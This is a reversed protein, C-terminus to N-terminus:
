NDYIVGQLIAPFLQSVRYISATTIKNKKLVALKTRTQYSRRQVLNTRKGGVLKAIMSNFSEAFNTTHGFLIGECKDATIKFYKMMDSLLGCSIMEPLLTSSETESKCFYDRCNDHNGFIHYPCNMIDKKLNAIREETTQLDPDANNFAAASKIGKQIRGLSSFLKDRLCKKVKQRSSSYLSKSLKKINKVLSRLTHNSCFMKKIPIGYPDADIIKRISSSDGDSVITDFILGMTEASTKFGELIIDSEMSTSSGEWNKFCKHVIAVERKKNHECISCFKNRVGLFLIKKTKAGIICAAGSLANIGTGYSRKSWVGDVIVTIRPHGTNM